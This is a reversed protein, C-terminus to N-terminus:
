LNADKTSTEKSLFLMSANKNQNEVFMKALCNLFFDSLNLDNKYCSQAFSKNLKEIAFILNLLHRFLKFNFIM